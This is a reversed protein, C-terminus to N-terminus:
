ERWHNGRGPCPGQTLAVARTPVGGAVTDMAANAIVSSDIRRCKELDPDLV